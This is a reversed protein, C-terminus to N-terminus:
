AVGVGLGTFMLGFFFDVLRLAFPVPVTTNSLPTKVLPVQPSCLSYTAVTVCVVLPDIDSKRVPEFVGDANYKSTAGLKLGGISVM